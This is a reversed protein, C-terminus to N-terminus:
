QKFRMMLQRSIFLGWYLPFKLFTYAMTFADFTEASKSAYCRFELEISLLPLLLGFVLLEGVYGIRWALPRKWNVLTLCSVLLIIIYDFYSIVM